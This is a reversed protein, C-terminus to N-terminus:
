VSQFRALLMKVTSGSAPFAVGSNNLLSIKFKCPPLAFFGLQFAPCLQLRQQTTVARLPIGGMYDNSVSQDDTYNTGDPAKLMYLNLLNGATPNSGFTTDSIFLAAWPWLNSSNDYEIGLAKSGNALSNLATDLVTVLSATELKLSTAM